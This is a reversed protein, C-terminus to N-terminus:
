NEMQTCGLKKSIEFSMQKAREGWHDFRIVPLDKALATISIAALIEKNPGYVPVALCRISDEMEGDEIAYGNQRLFDIDNKYHEIIEQKEEPKKSYRGIAESISQNDLQIGFAKGVGSSHLPLQQGISTAFRVFGNGEVKDIYVPQNGALIALHGTYPTNEVLQEILPHAINVLDIQNYYHMGWKFTRHSLKYSGDEKREILFHKELTNLIVFTSTKPINLEHHIQNATLSRETLADLIEIAREVAPVSYDKKEM